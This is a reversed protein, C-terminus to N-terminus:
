GRRDGRVRTHILEALLLDSHRSLDGCIRMWATRTISDLDVHLGDYLPAYGLWRLRSRLERRQVAEERPLSFAILTWQQDWTTTDASSVISRGGTALVLAAGSALRYFSNRGQRSGELVGRRALRSIAARAGAHSVGAEAVIAASPLSAFGANILAAAFLDPHDAMAQYALRTGQSFGPCPSGSATSAYRNMFAEVLAAVEAPVGIRETQPALIIVDERSVTLAPQAWAVATIDVAVEPLRFAYPVTM